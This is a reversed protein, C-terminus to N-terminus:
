KSNGEGRRGLNLAGGLNMRTVPLLIEDMLHSCIMGKLEGRTPTPM